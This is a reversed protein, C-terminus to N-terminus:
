VAALSPKNQTVSGHACRTKDSVLVKEIDPAIMARMLAAYNVGFHIERGVKLDSRTTSIITHDSTGGVLTVGSPMSLGTVDTDQYGVGLLSRINPNHTPVVRLEALGPTVFPTAEPKSQTEIIEATLKFADTYLGDIQHGSVPDVGLLIAEGIRLNNIRGIPEKGLVSPLNASNGGSLTEIIAGCHVEVENALATLKAVATADAAEGNLCAFNAGIGVLAVGPMNLVQLAVAVLEEPLIGERMDGMEVMLIINHIVNARIAAEALGNIVSIETNYSTECNRVVQDTQSLMPTRIMSIPCTFGAERLREVNGIRAEALGIAGGDLMANAVGPDGAVAKTVGVVSIGRSKLRKVLCDTNHQIKKLDIEIRPATM